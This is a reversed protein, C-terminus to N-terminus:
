ESDANADDTAPTSSAAADTESQAQAPDAGAAAQTEEPTDSATDAPAAPAASNAKLALRAEARAKLTLHAAILVKGKTLAARAAKNAVIAKHLETKGKGSSKVSSAAHAILKHTKVLMTKVKTADGSSRPQALASGALFAMGLMMVILKKMTSGM